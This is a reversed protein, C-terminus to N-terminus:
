LQWNIPTKGKSILYDNAQSFHKSGFFGRHASLPSPHPSTLILNKHADVSKAKKKAFNGWLMYVVETKRHNLEEIAATTFRGWGKGEHSNSVGAQVTLTANLLLVGQKAWSTLNGSQNSIGVDSELEKYINRLSPPFTTQEKVSFCLGHAQGPNIYPDQGLIVVKVDDLPCLNFANFIEDGSPYCTKTAYESKVFNTLETFYPSEFQRQLASKWLREIDVNM